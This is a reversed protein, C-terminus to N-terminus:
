LPKRVVISADFNHTKFSYPTEDPSYFLDLGHNFNTPNNSELISVIYPNSVKRDLLKFFDSFSQFKLIRFVRFYVYLQYKGAVFFILDVPLLALVDMKCQLKRRYHKRTQSTEKIWFGEYLFILRHKVFLVDLWYVVDAVIDFGFWIFINDESQYEFAARLPIVWCNYLYCISVLLLWSIYFKGLYLNIQAIKTM